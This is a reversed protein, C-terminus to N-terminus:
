LNMRKALKEACGECGQVLRGFSPPHNHNKMNKRPPTHTLDWSRADRDRSGAQATHGESRQRQAPQRAQVREDGELGERARTDRGPTGEVAEADSEEQVGFWIPARVAFGTQSEVEGDTFFLRAGGEPFAGQIPSGCGVLAMEAIGKRGRISYYGAGRIPRLHAPKTDRDSAAKLNHVCCQAYVVGPWGGNSLLEHLEPVHDYVVRRDSSPIDPGIPAGPIATTM